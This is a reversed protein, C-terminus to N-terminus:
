PSERTGVLHAWLGHGGEVMADGSLSDIIEITVAERGSLGVLQEVVVPLM